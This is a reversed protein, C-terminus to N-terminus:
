FFPTALQMGAGLMGLLGPGPQNTVRQMTGYEGASGQAAAQLAGLRTWPQMDQQYFRSVMDNIQAQNAQDQVAGSQMLLNPAFTRNQQITPMANIFGLAQMLGQNSLDAGQGAAGMQNQLNQQRANFLDGAAGRQRQWDEGAFGRQAMNADFRQNMNDRRLGTVDGALGRQMNLLYQGLASQSDAARMQNDINQGEVGTLGSVAGLQYGLRGQQANEIAQAAQMQAARERNFDESLGKLMFDSTTEGLVGQHAGSGYRGGSAFAGSVRDGINEAERDLLARFHPNGDAIYDGRATATLYDEAAGPQQARGYVDRYDQGTGISTEGTRFPDYMSNADRGFARSQRQVNWFPQAGISNRGDAFQGIRADAGPALNSASNMLGQFHGTGPNYQGDTVDGFFSMANQSPGMLGGQSLMQNTLQVPNQALDYSEPATAINRLGRSGLQTDDSPAAVTSGPYINFGQGSNYLNQAVKASQKFLPQAWAPPENDQTVTTDGGGKMSSGM